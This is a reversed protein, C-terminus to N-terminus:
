IDEFRQGLYQWAVTNSSLLSGYTYAKRFAMGIIRGQMITKQFVAFYLKTPIKGCDIQKYAFISVQHFPVKRHFINTGALFSRLNLFSNRSPFFFLSFSFSEMRKRLTPPQKTSLCERSSIPLLPEFGM